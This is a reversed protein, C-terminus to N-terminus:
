HNVSTLNVSAKLALLLSWQPFCLCIGCFVELVNQFSSQLLPGTVELRGGTYVPLVCEM